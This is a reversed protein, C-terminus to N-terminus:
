NKEGQNLPTPQLQLMATPVRLDFAKPVLIPWAFV